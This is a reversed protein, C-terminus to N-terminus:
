PYTLRYFVAGNTTNITNTYGNSADTGPITVWNTSLGVALTNTQAQVHWGTHDTPWSLILQNGVVSAVINTPNTAVNPPLVSISGDVALNNTFLVGAPATIAILNGNTVGQNFLQFRDGAVLAPGLNSVILTSGSTATVNTTGSTLINVVTNSQALSKNLSVYTAGSLTLINSVTFSGVMGYDGPVFNGGANVTLNSVLGSGALTGGSAIVAPGGAWQGTLVLKGANANLTGVTTSAGSVTWTGGDVKTLSGLTQANDSAVGSFLGNGPGGLQFNRGNANGDSAVNGSLTLFGAKSIIYCAGGGYPLSINGAITNTGAENYLVGNLYTLFFSISSDININGHSGDLHIATLQSVGGAVATVTKPGVGLAGANTIWL